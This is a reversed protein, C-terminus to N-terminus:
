NNAPNTKIPYPPRKLKKPPNKKLEELIVEIAKELQPDHGNIVQEPWQEVQIDPPVGVNEVLWGDKTWFAINPATVIGGDMLVPYGLTGVLGGWTRKGILKGLKFKRFMWPLLDGGSGAIENILMVKPGQIAATPTNIDAGYRTAWNCIFPRRLIDIFYDAVQGGANHREDVIIADKHTQPYFYRKFYTHGRGATNPVYVYAVRGNTAKDVKKLNGEVWDRNRLAYEREIPVVPVTRAGSGDPNPGVKIEVIKGATNEFYRFLNEPPKLDKGNVALLYEGANVGVGPETLPSRLEPNWNLGGYVKKFRYRGNQIIYDAGLLGGPIPEPTRPTDGGGVAHHGVSLESCMWQIVRNLDSRCSLHPLFPAYKKKMAKWAVGHMNPDYFYDRNIRWAEDFIQAWEARPDVFVQIADLNLKGDGPKIKGTSAAIGYTAECSRYLLKKKDASLRFSLIQEGLVEDKRKELSYKHLKAASSTFRFGREPGAELYYLEGEKGVQLNRYNGEPVPLCLIRTELGPFDITVTKEKESSGKKSIDKKTKTTKVASKETEPGPKEEDSEKALPSPTDKTLVALYISSTMWMDANSMAFWDKAPGANTSVFFYLYKGSPDFVPEAAESLGDTIIFSKDQDISYLYVRRIHSPNNLTYAIWRSDPSWSAQINPFARPGYTYESGIKKGTGSGINIWYLSRSNDTYSIKKSDPSWVPANYFGAGDPKFTRLKGKGDQSKIHLEYEGSADSFYAIFKGDPSWAPSREHVSTSNTINRPNGKKAPVTIIEGRYEFVARAGSPSIDTNRIFRDNKAYRPRVEYLDAAAGITLKKTIGQNPDYLHLYGSQEYIIKGAGASARLVPFDRHRTLQKIEKNQLDFSFLNFEGNRDSRFYIKNGMWMPDTDNCRGQPQPIEEVAHNDFRYLWIRSVTGGRYHKWQRFVEGIPTYAMRTGDPSYAADNAHPIPLPTPFGGSTPLTFLQTYAPAFVNRASIFLVASGDPTFGRVYDRGPHWTLRKPVGGEISIIYVDTNGDYHASFAILQGDPSFVPGTENGEHATLRRVNKGNIDAVWLDGAYTFAIHNNTIAPRTLMRTDKIDIGTGPFLPISIVLSFIVIMLNYAKKM